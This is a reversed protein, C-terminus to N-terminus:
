KIVVKKLSNMLGLCEFILKRFSPFDNEETLVLLAEMKCLLPFLDTHDSLLSSMGTVELILNQLPSSWDGGEERNPLLKFIQNTIRDLNKEIASNDFKIDYKFVMTQEGYDLEILAPVRVM